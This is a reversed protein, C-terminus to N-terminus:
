GERLRGGQIRGDYGSLDRAIRQAQEKTLARRKPGDSTEPSGSAGAVPARPATAFVDYLFGAPRSTGARVLAAEAMDLRDVLLTNM